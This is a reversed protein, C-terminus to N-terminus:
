FSFPVRLFSFFLYLSRGKRREKRGEEGRDLLLPSAIFNIGPVYILRIQLIANKIRTPSVFLNGSKGKTTRDLAFLAPAPEAPLDRRRKPIEETDEAEACAKRRRQM